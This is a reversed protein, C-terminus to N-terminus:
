SATMMVIWGTSEVKGYAAIKKDGEMSYYEIGGEGAMMKEALAVLNADDEELINKFMVFYEDPHAVYTGSQDVMVAYGSEGLKESNIMDTIYALEITGGVVGVIMGDEDKVPATIVIIPRGIKNSISPESVVTRGTLAETFYDRGSVSAYTGDNAQYIGSSSDAIWIINFDGLTDSCDQLHQLFGDVDMEVAERTAALLEIQSKWISLKGETIEIIKEVKMNATEEISSLLADSAVFYGAGAVAGLGLVALMLIPVLIRTKLSKM